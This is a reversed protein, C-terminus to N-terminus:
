EKSRVKGSIQVEFLGPRWGSLVAAPNTLSTLLDSGTMGQVRALANSIDGAATMAASSSLSLSSSSSTSSQVATAAQAAAVKATAVAEMISAGGDTAFFQQSGTM